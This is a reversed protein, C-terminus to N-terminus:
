FHSKNTFSEKEKKLNSNEINLLNIKNEYDKRLKNRYKTIKEDILDVYNEIEKLLQSSTENSKIPSDM